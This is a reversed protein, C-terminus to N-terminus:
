LSEIRNQGRVKKVRILAPSDEDGLRIVVTRVSEDRGDLRTEVVGEFRKASIKSLLHVCEDITLKAKLEDTLLKRAADGNDAATFFAKVVDSPAASPANDRALGCGVSAISCCLCWALVVWQM